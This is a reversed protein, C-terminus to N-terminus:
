LRGFYGGGDNFELNIKGVGRYRLWMRRKGTASLFESVNRL